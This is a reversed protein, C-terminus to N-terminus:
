TTAKLAANKMAIGLDIFPGCCWNLIPISFVRVHAMREGFEKIRMGTRYVFGRSFIM